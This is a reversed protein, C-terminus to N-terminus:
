VASRLAALIAEAVAAVARHGDVSRLLGRQRYYGIVPATQERYVALRQRVVEERDDARGRGSMRRVLEEEPVELLIVGDLTEGQRRLLEDLTVAQALTRPYGDLIFGRGADPQALREGVVAAMTDDDVLRGAALIGDVQRGLESGSAVAQRLMEGTSVAPVGLRQALLVAQTGKGSGPAGFFVVRLAPLQEAEGAM